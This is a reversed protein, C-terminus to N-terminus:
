RQEGRTVVVDAEKQLALAAPLYKANLGCQHLHADMRERKRLPMADRELAAPTIQKIIYTPLDHYKSPPLFVKVVCVPADDQERINLRLPRGQGGAPDMNAPWTLCTDQLDWTSRM